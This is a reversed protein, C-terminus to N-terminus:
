LHNCPVKIRTEAERAALEVELRALREAQSMRSQLKDMEASVRRLSSCCCWPSNHHLGPHHSKPNPLACPIAEVHLLASVSM